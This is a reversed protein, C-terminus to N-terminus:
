LLFGMQHSMTSIISGVITHLNVVENVQSDGQMYLVAQGRAVVYAYEFKSTLVLPNHQTGGELYIIGDFDKKIKDLEKQTKVIVEKM